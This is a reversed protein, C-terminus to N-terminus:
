RSRIRSSGASDSQAPTSAAWTTLGCARTSASARPSRQTSTSRASSRPSRSGASVSNPAHAALGDEGLRAVADELDREVAGLGAVGDVRRHGLAHGGRQVAEVAVVVQAHRDERAGAAREAGPHVQLREHGALPGVRLAAAERADRLPRRLLRDDRRDLAERDGAAELDREGAVQDDRRAVRLDADRLDLAPQDGGGARQDPERLPDRVVERHLQREGAVRDGGLARVRDPDDVPEGLRAARDGGRALEGGRDDALPGSAIAPELRIRTRRRRSSRPPPTPAGPRSRRGSRRRRPRGRPRWRTRRSAGAPRARGSARGGNRARVRRAHWRAARARAVAVVRAGAPVRLRTEFGQRPPPARRACRGRPPPGALLVGATSAPRATRPERDRRAARVSSRPRTPRAAPGRRATPATTTTARPSGATSCSAGTRRSSRSPRRRAGAWSCTGPRAADAHQGADRRAPRGNPYEDAVRATGAARTSSSRSGARASARSRRSRRPTTSCRSRATGAGASTTSTPSRRATPSSSTARRAASGGASRARAATSRTRPGPIARTSWCTATPRRDRRLQPARLRLGGQTPDEPLPWHSEELGVHDLSHWEFLVHGTELDVEQVVGDIAM